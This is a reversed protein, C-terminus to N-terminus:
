EAFHKSADKQVSGDSDSGFFRPSILLSLIFILM